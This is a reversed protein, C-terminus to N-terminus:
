NLRSIKELGRLNRLHHMLMDLHKNDKVMVQLYGTFSGNNNDTLNISRLSCHLKTITETITAILGTETEGAIRLKVPFNSALTAARWRAQLIRYPYKELLRAANPCSHRHIKIGEAVSVFGFVDDGYIPNCCKALKYDTSRLKEDIIIYDNDAPADAPAPSLPLKSGSAALPANAAALPSDATIIEKIQAIDIQENALGAYLDTINKLKYHKLLRNLAEDPLTIKWNKLRRELLERGERARRAEEERLRQKIKSRAKSTIVYNLWDAAPLRNKATTIEVTDGTHLTEKIAAMRGNIKAGVTHLGINTHLDFAFDLVSAGAPLRRLDGAPTIVIIENLAIPEPLRNHTDNPAELLQRVQDLWAQMSGLHHIGKYKWHAAVGREAAEDMATTRIQVELPHGDPTKVTTHLSRYGSSKPQSIWDRLRSIDTEYCKEVISYAKWCAADEADRVPPTDIIIRIAFIDYVKEFDIKQNQMKKWISYISKTRSKIDFAFGDNKLAAEIPRIIHQLFKEREAATTKLKNTIHRWAEPETFKLSLDEMESKVNYLGLQHALPAYLLLTETAKQQQKAKPFADLRRMVELRDLLKIIVVRPDTSFSLILKRFNEAQLSTQKIDIAAIRNLGDVIATIEDGYVKRIDIERKKQMAECEKPTKGAYEKEEHRMTEHLLIAIVPAAMLGIDEVAIKAVALAHYLMPDGNHRFKGAMATAADNCARLILAREHESFHAASQLLQHQM